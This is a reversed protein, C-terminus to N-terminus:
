VQVKKETFISDNLFRRSDTIWASLKADVDTYDVSGTMAEIDWMDDEQVIRDAIEPFQRFTQFRESQRNIVATFRKHFILSFCTGHFSDTVIYSANRLYSLWKEPSLGSKINDYELVRLCHDQERLNADVIYIMKIGGLAKQLQLCLDRKKKNPNLLYAAIYPETEQVPTDCLMEDYDAQELLFVPDVVWSAEVGYHERCLAVGFEERVSIAQYGSLLKQGVEQPPAGSATGFSSAYAIRRKQEGAFGLLFYQECQYCKSLCYNWVQDSGVMYTDCCEDLTKYDSQHFYDSSLIYRQKAFVQFQEAPTLPCFNDLMIVHLGLRSLYEYLAYNTLANGYNISWMCVLAIDFHIQEKASKIIQAISRNGRMKWQEFFIDRFKSRKVPESICPNHRRADEINFASIKQLKPMIKRLASAGKVSNLTVMSTGMGDDMDCLTQIGWFDGLTIDSYKKNKFRCSYCASRLTWNRLFGYIYPDDDPGGIYEGGDVDKVYIGTSWGFVSKKRFSVAAIKSKDGLYENLIQPSPVGHCVVDAVLFNEYERGLYRKLGAAQCACGTFLVERGEELLERIRPYVRDGISSQVYKSSMMREVDEERNSVIHHVGGWTDDWVAGCVYGGNDLVSDALLKFIGGSSSKQRVERDGMAAYCTAPPLTGDTENCVPCVAKCRGCRTCKDQDIVPIPFGEDSVEQSIADVPCVSQCAMCGTCEHVGTIDNTEIIEPDSSPHLLDWKEKAYARYDEDTFLNIICECYFEECGYTVAEDWVADFKKKKLLAMGLHDRFADMIYCQAAIKDRNRKGVSNESEYAVALIEDVLDIDYKQAIRISLEYDELSRLQECFGGVELFVSKRVVLTIMGILPQLLLTHFIYGSKSSWAMRKHPYVYKFSGNVFFMSYVAGVRDDCGVFHGMQKELKDEYWEDDSDHFAIYEGGAYSVGVNRSAAAGLNRDNRVYVINRDTIQGYEAQVFEMTGDTSCDDVIIIEYNPYTQSLVSDICRKITHKRNYTPIIVSVLPQLYERVFKEREQEYNVSNIMGCDHLCWPQDMRPVVVKYGRRIFEMSQSCDYFDWKDFLDERWPIDYQTVMLFGDIAEVQAYDGEIEHDFSTQSMEWINGGYMRGCRQAKWMIGSSPLKVAGVNGIMGIQPDSQFIRLCNRIFDPDIIFTDQHLYVKYKAPSYQMGENYGSTMSRADEITLVEIRYGDPIRLHDIYYMCEGAYLPDNSCM